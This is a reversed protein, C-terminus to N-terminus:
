TTIVKAVEAMVAAKISENIVSWLHQNILNTLGTIFLGTDGKVKKIIFSSNVIVYSHEYCIFITEKVM